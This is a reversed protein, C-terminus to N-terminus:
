LRTDDYGWAKVWKGSATRAAVRSLRDVMEEISKVKAPSVDIEVGNLIEGFHVMHNHSDILGPMLTKGTVDLVRTEPGVLDSLNGPIDMAQIRGDVIALDLQRAEVPDEMTIVLGGSFILDARRKQVLDIL